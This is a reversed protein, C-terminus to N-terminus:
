KIVIEDHYEDDKSEFHFNPHQREEFMLLCMNAIDVLWESNGTNEFFSLRKRISEIRNYYPKNKPVSGHGMKGYRISGMLLRNRMLNEFESSWETKRLEDLDIQNAKDFDIEELGCKWRWLNKLFDKTNM